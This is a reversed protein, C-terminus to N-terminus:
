GSTNMLSANASLSSRTSDLTCTPEAEDNDEKDDDDDAADDADFRLINKRITVMKKKMM